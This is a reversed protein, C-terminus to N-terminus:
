KAAAPSGFSFKPQKKKKKAEIPGEEELDVLLSVMGTGVPAPQGLIIASAPSSVTDTVRDKCAEQCFQMTTEYSMQLFPSTCHLMGRRNFPRFGGAQSMFDGILSLHRHNVEIGYHGFVSRIEKVINARAAEVGFTNLVKAIDNTSIRNVDVTGLPLLQLARLNTGECELWVKGKDEQVHVKQIGAHDGDQFACKESLNKVVEGVLLKQSCMSLQLTVVLSIADTEELKGSWVLSGSDAAQRYIDTSVQTADPSSKAASKGKNRSSASVEKNEAEQEEEAEMDDVGHKKKPAVEEDDDDEDAGEEQVPEKESESSEAYMGSAHSSQDDDGQNNDTKAEEEAVAEEQEDGDREGKGLKRKKKKGQRGADKAADEEDQAEAAEAGEESGRKTKGQKPAEKKVQNVLKLVSAKLHRVFSGTMYAEISSRSLHPVEAVLQSIPWFEFRAHYSRVLEGGILRVREDVRISRVIDILKVRRFSSALKAAYRLRYPLGTNGDTDALIEVKMLPTSPNASATQVIERLRPIGLTVNAGGHGALHFTNLTMQTSPEGMSQAAIVGVAEGPHALSRMFKLRMYEAFATAEEQSCKGSKMAGALFKQLEAEHLESTAGFYHTPNLVASVPDFVHDAKDKAGAKRIEHIMKRTHKLSSCTVTDLKLEESRSELSKLKSEATSFDAARAAEQADFYVRAAELEVTKFTSASKRLAKLGRESGPRLMKFNDFLTEFKFLHSSLTVDAGDDGYLFQIVSGDSDRVSLDYCVKLCEFHKVLCRQLYGSRSTKVATDVLGERGAMCHFFFEQPRIGTLFRDTIYGRTRSSLDYPAFSPLSRRTPMLPVQRGELEQQGLLCAIQSQNVKSGKAGTQVMASFCNRPFALKQGAPICADITGTWSSRMRGLMSAELADASSANAEILGRGAKSLEQSTTKEANPVAIDHASLWDRITEQAVRRSNSILGRRKEETPDTLILDRFACTFGRMQLYSTFLRAFSALVMGVVKSGLLEYIVHILGFSTSGFQNKDLVGMLLETGQVLVTGEQKDGDLKGNWIDGPTKSKSSFNMGGTGLDNGKGSLRFLNKLLMSLVQKGTWLKRPKYITPEDLEIRINQPHRRCTGKMKKGARTGAIDSELASRLGVYLLSCAESKSIYCDRRTLMVGGIVHDQILGRLPKGSTPVLYQMDARAISLAEIRGIPDQPAHLNMEDGDFDANYTNCNAYHLRITKEGTGMIKAVHAMIGPKHLTPQRNVLLPDGDRIHRLVTACRGSSLETSMTAALSKRQEDSFRSLVRIDKSGDPRQFHVEIAGPYKNGRHILKRLYEINGSNATEAYTLEEAIMQPVGIETTEINPDPSIVSRAAQNVRKGMMKMRFMGQKKELLQRVGPKALKANQSGKTSDLFSNVADQLGQFEQVASAIPRDESSQSYKRKKANNDEGTSKPLLALRMRENCVLIERLHITHDNLSGGEGAAVGTSPPRFRNPTVFVCEMFFIKYGLEITGPLLWRLMASENEFLKALVTKVYIPLCFM